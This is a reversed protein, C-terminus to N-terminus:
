YAARTAAGAAKYGAIVPGSFLTQDFSLQGHTFDDKTISSIGGPIKGGPFFAGFDGIIGPGFGLAALNHQYVGTSGSFQITPLFEQLAINKEGALAKENAQSERLGLNNELGRRIADDLSLRIVEATAPHLTVSGYFPNSASSPNPSVQQASLQPVAACLFVAAALAPWARWIDPQHMSDVAM